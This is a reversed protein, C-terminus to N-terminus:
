RPNSRVSKPHELLANDLFAELDDNASAAVDSLGLLLQTYGPFVSDMLRGTATRRKSGNAGPIAFAVACDLLRAVLVGVAAMPGSTLFLFVDHRKQEFFDLMEMVSPVKIIADNLQLEVVPKFRRVPCLCALPETETVLLINRAVAATSGCTAAIVSEIRERDVSNDAFIAVKGPRHPKKGRELDQKTQLALMRDRNQLYYATFYPILALHVATLESFRTELSRSRSPWRYRCSADRHKDLFLGYTRMLAQHYDARDDKSGGDTEIAGIASSTALLDLARPGVEPLARNWVRKWFRRAAIAGRLKPGFRPFLRTGGNLDSKVVSFVNASFAKMDDGVAIFNGHYHELLNDYMANVLKKTSGHEGGVATRGKQIDNLLRDITRASSRTFTSGVYSGCHDDSGAVGHRKGPVYFPVEHREQLKMLYADDAQTILSEALTNSEYSRHGNRVEWIRFLLLLREIQGPKLDHPSYCPHALFHVIGESGFYQILEYVNSKLAQIEKHQQENINLAVVHIQRSTEPLVATVEESIFFDDLHALRLAGEISDHDTVTVFRMGRRKAREYVDFPSSHCERGHMGLTLPTEFRGSFRTHVHLDVRSERSNVFAGVELADEPQRTM